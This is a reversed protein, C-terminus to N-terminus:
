RMHDNTIAKLHSEVWKSCKEHFFIDLGTGSRYINTTSPLTCNTESYIRAFNMTCFNIVINAEIVSGLRINGVDFM